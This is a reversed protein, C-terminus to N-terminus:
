QKNKKSVYNNFNLGLETPILTKYINPDLWNIYM